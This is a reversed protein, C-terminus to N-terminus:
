AHGYPASGPVDGLGTDLAVTSHPEPCDGSAPLCQVPSERWPYGVPVHVLLLRHVRDHFVNINQVQM